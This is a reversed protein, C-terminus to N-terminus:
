PPKHAGACRKLFTSYPQFGGGIGLSDPSIFVGLRDASDRVWALRGRKDYTFAIKGDNNQGVIRQIHLRGDSRGPVTGFERRIGDDSTISWKSQANFRLTLRDIPHRVEDGARM